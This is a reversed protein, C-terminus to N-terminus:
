DASSPRSSSAEGSSLRRLDEPRDKTLAPRIYKSVTAGSVKLQHRYFADAADRRKLHDLAAKKDEPLERYLSIFNDGQWATERGDYIRARYQQAFLDAHNRWFEDLLRDYADYGHETFSMFINQRGDPTSGFSLDEVPYSVAIARTTPEQMAEFVTGLKQRLYQEIMMRYFAQSQIQQHLGYPRRPDGELIAFNFLRKAIKSASQLEGLGTEHLLSKAANVQSIDSPLAAVRVAVVVSALWLASQLLAIRLCKM